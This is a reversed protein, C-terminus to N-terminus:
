FLAMDPHSRRVIWNTFLILVFGVVSQFFAGAGAYGFSNTLNGKKLMDYVYTDITSTVQRLTGSGNPLSYFMDFDGNFIRGVALIQLMVIVPMLQPLTIYKFQQWKSAGDIAGAEYLQEDFGTLTALYIISGQGTYKWINALLFIWPWYQKQSYFKVADKGLTANIQNFFGNAAIMAYLAYMVVIWSVFYPMFMITHYVKATKRNRMENIVVALGVQLVVGVAMFLLNYGVTNRILMPADKLLYTFNNLGNWESCVLSNLFVNKFFSNATPMTMQYKKFALIIGPMPLYCFALLFLVGPLVMALYAAQRKGSDALTRQRVKKNKMGYVVM